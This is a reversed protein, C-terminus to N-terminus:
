VIKLVDISEPLLNPHLNLLLQLQLLLLLLLLAHAHANGRLAHRSRAAHRVARSPAGRMASDISCMWTGRITGEYWLSAKEM